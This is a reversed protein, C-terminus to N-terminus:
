ILRLGWADLLVVLFLIISPPVHSWARHRALTIWIAVCLLLALLLGFPRTPYWAIMLGIVAQLLGNFVHFWAPFGWARLGDKIPKFGVLSLVANVLFFAALIWALWVAWAYNLIM